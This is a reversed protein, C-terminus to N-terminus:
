SALASLRFSAIRKSRFRHRFAALVGSTPNTPDDRTDWTGVVNLRAVNVTLDFELGSGANESRRATHDRDFQYSYSVELDRVLDSTFGSDERAYSIFLRPM